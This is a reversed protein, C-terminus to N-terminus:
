RSIFPRRSQALYRKVKLEYFTHVAAAGVWLVLFWVAEM